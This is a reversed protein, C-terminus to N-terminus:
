RKSRRVYDDYGDEVIRMAAAVNDAAAVLAKRLAHDGVVSATDHLEIDADYLMDLLQVREAESIGRTQFPNRTRRRSKRIKRRRGVRAKRRRNPTRGARVDNPMVILYGWHQSGTGDVYSRYVISVLGMKGLEAIYRPVGESRTRWAEGSRHMKEMFKWQTRTMDRAM